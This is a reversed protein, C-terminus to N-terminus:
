LGPLTPQADYVPRDDDDRRVGPSLRHPERAGPGTLHEVAAGRLALADAILMRHCQTWRTEACMVALPGPAAVLEDIAARFAATDMHDAYAALAPEPVATHRSGARRRRRGGLTDGQWTYRIGAKEVAAALAERGFQPHRRSGPERRVDVLTGVRAEVLIAVLEGIPRAGHGVTCIRVSM